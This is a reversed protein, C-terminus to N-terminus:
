AAGARAAQWIQDARATSEPSWQYGGLTTDVLVLAQTRQPYALAFDLAVGGGMSQGVLCAQGINLRDLM